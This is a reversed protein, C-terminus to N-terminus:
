MFTKHCFLISVAFILHAFFLQTYYLWYTMKPRFLSLKFMIFWGLIGTFGIIAGYLLSSKLNIAMWGKDKLFLYLLIFLLGIMYHLLWGLIHNIRKSYFHFIELLSALLQPEKFPEKFIWATIYSFLTMMSTAIITTLITWSIM